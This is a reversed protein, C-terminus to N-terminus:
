MAKMEAMDAMQMPMEEEELSKGERMMSKGERMMPKVVPDALIRYSSRHIVPAAHHVIPHATLGHHAVPHAVAHHAVPHAVAHHAVAHHAVPHAVAHHAVPHAVAHSVPDALFRIGHHAPAHHVAPLHHVAPAVAHHVVPAAHHVVPAAHHVLPAAHHVVPAAHHVAPAAYVPADDYVAEGTYTVEQVMGDGGDHYTVTQVRGDPLEVTYSGSTTYGDRTEQQQFNAGSYDDNVGYQYAYAPPESLDQYPAPAAQYQPAALCCSILPLLLTVKMTAGCVSMSEGM